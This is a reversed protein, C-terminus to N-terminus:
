LEDTTASRYQNPLMGTHKKFLRRFTKPNVYGVELAVDQVTSDPNTLLEKAHEIRCRSIYDLLKENTSKNFLHSLYTSTIGLNEAIVSVSLETNSYNHEVFRMAKRVIDSNYDDKATNCALTIIECLNEFDARNLFSHLMDTLAKENEGAASVKLITSVIDFSIYKLIDPNVNKAACSKLIRSVLAIAGSSNGQLIYNKLLGEEEPSFAYCYDGTTMRYDDTIVTYRGSVARYDLLDLCKLYLNPLSTVSNKVDSAAVTMRIKFNDNLFNKAENLITKYNSDASPVSFVFAILQEVETYYSQIGSNEIMEQTIQRITFRALRVGNEV